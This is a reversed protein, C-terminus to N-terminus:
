MPLKAGDASGASMGGGAMAGASMASTMTAPAMATTPAGSDFAMTTKASSMTEEGAGPESRRRVIGGTLILKLAEEVPMALKVVDKRYVAVLNGAAPSFAQMVFVLVKAETDVADLAPPVEGTVFGVSWTGPRPYQLAVVERFAGKERNLFTDSFDKLIRYVVNFAPIRVVMGEVIQVLRKGIFNSVMAGVTLTSILLLALGLGPIERDLWRKVIPQAWGDLIQFAWVFVVVTGIFPLWVLLGTFFWRQLIKFPRGM